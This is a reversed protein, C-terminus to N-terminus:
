RIHELTLRYNPKKGGRCQHRDRLRPRCIEEAPQPDVTNDPLDKGFVWHVPADFHTGTALGTGRTRRLLWRSGGLLRRM